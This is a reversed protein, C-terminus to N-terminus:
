KCSTHSCSPSPASTLKPWSTIAARHASSSPSQCTLTFSFCDPLTNSSSPLKKILADPTSFYTDSPRRPPPPPTAIDLSTSVSVHSCPKAVPFPGLDLTYAVKLPSQYMGSGPGLVKVISVLCHGHNAITSRTKLHQWHYLWTLPATKAQNDWLMSVCTEHFELSWSTTGCQGSVLKSGVVM